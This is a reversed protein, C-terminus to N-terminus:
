PATVLSCISLEPSYYQEAAVNLLKDCGTTLVPFDHIGWRPRFRPDQRLDCIRAGLEAVYYTAAKAQAPTTSAVVTEQSQPPSLLFDDATLPDNDEDDDASAVAAVFNDISGCLRAVSGVGLM